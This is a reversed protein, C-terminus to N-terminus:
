LCIQLSLLLLSCLSLHFYLCVPTQYFPLRLPTVSSSSVILVFVYQLLVDQSIHFNSSACIDSMFSIKLASWITHRKLHLCLGVCTYSTYSM